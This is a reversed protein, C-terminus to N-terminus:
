VLFGDGSGKEVRYTAELNVVIECGFEKCWAYDDNNVVTCREDFQLSETECKKLKRHLLGYPTSMYRSKASTLGVMNRTM